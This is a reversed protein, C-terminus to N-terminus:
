LNHPIIAKKFEWQKEFSTSKYRNWGLRNILFAVEIDQNRIKKKLNILIQCFVEYM